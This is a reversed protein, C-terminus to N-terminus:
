DTDAGVVRGRNDLIEKMRWACRTLALRPPVNRYFLKQTALLETLTRSLMKIGDFKSAIRKLETTSDSNIILDDGLDDKIIAMDRTMSQWIRVAAIADDRNSSNLCNDVADAIDPKDRDAITALVKLAGQRRDSFDSNALKFAGTISGNSLRAFGAAQEPPIGHKEALYDTVFEAPIPRFRVRQCRSLVTRPLRRINDTLLILLTMAPPEEITKLLIDFSTEPMREVQNFVAVKWGGEASTSYLSRKLARVSDVLINAARGYEVPAFSDAAKSKRFHEPLETEETKNRPSPMPYLLHLDPHILKRAKNRAADRELGEPHTSALLEAAFRIAADWKGTGESGAFLYASPVRGTELARRLLQEVTPQYPIELSYQM